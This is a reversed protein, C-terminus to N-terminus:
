SCFMSIGFNFNHCLNDYLYASNFILSYVSCCLLMSHTLEEIISSKLNWNSGM